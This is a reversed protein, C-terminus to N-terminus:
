NFLKSYVRIFNIRKYIKCIKEVRSMLITQMPWGLKIKTMTNEKQSNIM